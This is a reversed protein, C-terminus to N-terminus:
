DIHIYCDFCCKFNNLSVRECMDCKKFINKIQQKYIIHEQRPDDFEFLYLNSDSHLYACRKGLAILKYITTKNILFYKECDEITDFIKYEAYNSINIVRIKLNM